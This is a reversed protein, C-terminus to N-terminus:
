ILTEIIAERGVRKHHLAPLELFIELAVTHTTLMEGSIGESFIM